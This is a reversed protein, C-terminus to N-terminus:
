YSKVSKPVTRKASAQMINHAQRKRAKAAQLREVISHMSSLQEPTVFEKPVYSGFDSYFWTLRKTEPVHRADEWKGVVQAQADMEKQVDPNLRAPRLEYALQEKATLPKAYILEGWALFAGNEVACYSEYNSISLPPNEAPRPYTGIDM